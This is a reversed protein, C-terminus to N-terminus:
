HNQWVLGMRQAKERAARRRALVLMDYKRHIDKYAQVYETLTINHPCFENGILEVDKDTVNKFLDRLMAKFQDPKLRHGSDRNYKDFLIKVKTVNPSLFGGLFVKQSNADSVLRYIADIEGENLNGDLDLLLERFKFQTLSRSRDIDYKDFLSKARLVHSDCFEIFSVTGGGDTDIARYITHLDYDDLMPDQARLLRKLQAEYLEGSRTGNFSDFMNLLRLLDNELFETFSIHGNGDLDVYQYLCRAEEKSIRENLSQLISVMEDPDVTRSKDTDHHDFLRKVKLVKSNIFENVDVVGSNDEDISKYWAHAEEAKLSPDLEALMKLFDDYVLEDADSNAYKRFVKKALWDDIDLKWSQCVYQCFDHHSEFCWSVDLYYDLFDIWTVVGDANLMGDSWQKLFEEVGSTQALNPCLEETLAIPNFSREVRDITLLGGPCQDCLTSYAEEVVDLRLSAWNGLGHALFRAYDVIMIDPELSGVAQFHKCFMEYEAVRLRIGMHTLAGEFTRAALMGSGELDMNHLMVRLTRIGHIGREKLQGFIRDTLQNRHEDPTLSVDVEPVCGPIHLENDPPIPALALPARAVYPADLDPRSVGRRQLVRRLIDQSREHCSQEDEFFRTKLDIATVIMRGDDKEPVQLATEANEGAGEIAGLLCAEVDPEPDGSECM